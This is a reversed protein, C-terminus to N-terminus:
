GVDVDQRMFIGAASRFGFGFGFRLKFKLKIKLKLRVRRFIFIFILIRVRGFVVGSHNTKRAMDNVAKAEPTNQIPVELLSLFASVV